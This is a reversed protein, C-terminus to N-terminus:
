IWYFHQWEKFLETIIFKVSMVNQGQAEVENYVNDKWNKIKSENIVMDEDSNFIVVM